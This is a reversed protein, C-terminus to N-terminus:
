LFINKKQILSALKPRPLKTETTTTLRLNGESLTYSEKIVEDEGLREVSPVTERDVITLTSM